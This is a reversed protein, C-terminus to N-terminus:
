LQEVLEMEILRNVLDAKLIKVMVKDGLKIDNAKGTGLAKIKSEKVIFSGGISEFSILGEAKTEGVEVFIGKEIMGSVMGEFVEGEHDKMYEVQKFKISDREADMARREQNSIHVCMTELKVKDARYDGNLNKELIRHALVDSYRRIPSTFHSYYDFGLGYHGINDTSYIAKAMTRIAFTMLLKYKDEKQAKESLINFSDSIKSPTSLDMKVDYEELLLKLDVLRDIDPVDHIRYVFPIPQGKSKTSIFTAVRRNALLMFDEILMHIEKREKVFVGIPKNNEDLKFHVEDTEFNIAGNDFRKKRLDKAIENVQNLEPGFLLSDDDLSKQAEEYTFRHDSHIIAKGFWENVLKFKKNFEFVASFVLRDKKPVLSCLNNSLKEPLMAICRDVLYVSTSRNFADKDLATGEKLYHTVDAIHVGVEFNGNELVQYSIADDFDQASEPDITFCLVDRFDRRKQIEEQTIEDSIAEIEQMVEAPYDSNFGNEILISEMTWDHTDLDNIVRNVKGWVMNDGSEGWSIIDVIVNDGDKAGNYNQPSIFVELNAKRTNFFVVGSTKSVKIKGIVRSINRKLVNVVRGEPKKSKYFRATVEVKDRNMASNLHRQPIYIDNELGEVMVYGAGSRIIDITGVYTKEDKSGKEADAEKAYRKNLVYKFESVQRIADENHLTKLVHSVADRTNALNLKKILQGANMRKKPNKLFYKLIFSKLHEANLKKGKKRKRRAM